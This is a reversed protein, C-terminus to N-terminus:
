WGKREVRADPDTQLLVFTNGKDGRAIRMEEDLYTIDIWGAAGEGAKVPILGFIRFQRFQVRVQLFTYTYIYIHICTFYLSSTGRHRSQDPTLTNHTSHTPTSRPSIARPASRSRPSILYIQTHSRHPSSAGQDGDPAGVDCLGELLAM